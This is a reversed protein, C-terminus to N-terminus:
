RKNHRGFAAYPPALNEATVMTNNHDEGLKTRQVDLLKEELELARRFSGIGKYSLALITMAALTNV